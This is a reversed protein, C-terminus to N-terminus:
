KQFYKINLCQFDCMSTVIYNWKSEVEPRVTVTVTNTGRDGEPTVATCIYTGAYSPQINSLTLVGNDQASGVYFM